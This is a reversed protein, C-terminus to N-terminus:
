LLCTGDKTILLKVVMTIKLKKGCIGYTNQAVITSVKNITQKLGTFVSAKLKSIHSLLM